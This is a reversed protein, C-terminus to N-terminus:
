SQKCYTMLVMPLGSLNELFASIDQDLVLETWPALRWVDTYKVKRDNGSQRYTKRTPGRVFFVRYVLGHTCSAIVM